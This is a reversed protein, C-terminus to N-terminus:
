RFLVLSMPSNGPTANYKPLAVDEMYKRLAKFDKLDEYTRNLNMFDGFIPIVRNPCISQVTQDLNSGLKEALCTLFWERDRLILFPM